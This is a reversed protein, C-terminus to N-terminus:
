LPFLFSNATLFEEVTEGRAMRGRVNKVRGNWLIEVRERKKKGKKGGGVGGWKEGIDRRSKSGHGHLEM